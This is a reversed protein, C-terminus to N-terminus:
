KNSSGEAYESFYVNEIIEVPEVWDGILNDVYVSGGGDADKKLTFGIEIHYAGEPVTTTLSYETWESATALSGVLYDSEDMYLFTDM